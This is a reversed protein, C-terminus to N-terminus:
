WGGCVLVGGCGGDGGERRLVGVLGDWRMEVVAEWVVKQDVICLASFNGVIEPHDQHTLRKSQRRFVCM